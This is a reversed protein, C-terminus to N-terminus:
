DLVMQIHSIGGIKKIHKEEVLNNEVLISVSELGIANIITADPLIKKIEDRNVIKGEYFSNVNLIKQGEEFIKGLLHEDAMALVVDKSTNYVKFSIMDLKTRIM